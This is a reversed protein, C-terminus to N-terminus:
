TATARQHQDDARKRRQQKIPVDNWGHHAANAQTNRRVMPTSPGAPMVVAIFMNTPMISAGNTIRGYKRVSVRAPRNTIIVAPMAM